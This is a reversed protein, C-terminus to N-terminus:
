YSENVVEQCSSLTIEEKRKGINANSHRETQRTGAIVELPVVSDGLCSPAFVVLWLLLLFVVREDEPEQKRRHREGRGHRHTHACADRHTEIM